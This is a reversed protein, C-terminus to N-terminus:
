AFTLRISSWMGSLNTASGRRALAGGYWIGVSHKYVEQGAQSLLERQRVPLMGAHLNDNLVGEGGPNLQAADVWPHVTTERYKGSRGTPCSSRRDCSRRRVRWHGIGVKSIVKSIRAEPWSSTVLGSGSM